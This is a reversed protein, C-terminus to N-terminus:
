SLSPPGRLLNTAASFISILSTSLNSTVGVCEDGFDLARVVTITAPQPDPPHGDDGALHSSIANECRFDASANQVVGHEHAQDGEDARLSRPSRNHIQRAITYEGPPGTWVVLGVLGVLVAALAVLSRQIGPYM